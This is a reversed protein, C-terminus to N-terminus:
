IMAVRGPWDQPGARGQGALRESGVGHFALIRTFEASEATEDHRAKPTHGLLAVQDLRRPVAELHHVHVAEANVLHEDRGRKV